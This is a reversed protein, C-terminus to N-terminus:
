YVQALWLVWLLFMLVFCFLIFHFLLPFQVQISQPSRKSSEGVLLQELAINDTDPTTPPRHAHLLCIPCAGLALPPFCHSCSGDCYSSWQMFVIALHVYVDQRSFSALKKVYEICLNVSNSEVQRLVPKM